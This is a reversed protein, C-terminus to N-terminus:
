SSARKRQPARARGKTVFRHLRILRRRAEEIVNAIPIAMAMHKAQTRLVEASGTETVAKLWQAGLGGILESSPRGVIHRVCLEFL